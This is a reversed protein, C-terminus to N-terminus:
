EVLQKALSTVLEIYKSPMVGMQLVALTSTLLAAAVYSSRMPVAIPADEDPAQM